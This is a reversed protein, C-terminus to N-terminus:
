IYTKLTKKWDTVQRGNKFQTKQHKATKIKIIDLKFFNYPDKNKPTM